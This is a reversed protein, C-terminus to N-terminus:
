YALLYEKIDESKIDTYIEHNWYDDNLEECREKMIKPLKDEEDLKIYLEKIISTYEKSAKDSAIYFLHRLGSNIIRFMLASIKKCYLLDEPKMTNTEIVDHSILHSSLNFHEKMDYITTNPIIKLIHINVICDTGRVSEILVDLGKLYSKKTEYPLGLIMDIKLQINGDRVLDMFAIFEGNRLCRRNVAKLAQESFSQVGLSLLVKYKQTMSTYVQPVDIMKMSGCNDIPSSDKFESIIEIIEKDLLGIETEIFISPIRFGRKKYSLIYLLIKKARKIDSTFVPDIIRLERIHVQIVRDIESLVTDMNFYKIKHIGKSYNCYSCHFTCGRQTELLVAKRYYIESKIIDSSYIAAMGIEIETCKEEWVNAYGMEDNKNELLHLLLASFKEEGEGVIYYNVGESSYYGKQVSNTEIEPGGFINVKGAGVERCIELVLKKNWTYVSYCIVESEESFVIDRLENLSITCPLNIVHFIYNEALVLYKMAHAVLAYSSLQYEALSDPYINIFIIRM